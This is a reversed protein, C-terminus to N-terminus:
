TRNNDSIQTKIQRIEQQVQNVMNNYVKIQMELYEDGYRSGAKTESWDKQMQKLKTQYKKLEQELRKLKDTQDM